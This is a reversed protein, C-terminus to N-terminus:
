SAYYIKINLAMLGELIVLWVQAVMYCHDRKTICNLLECNHRECLTIDLDIQEDIVCFLYFNRLM